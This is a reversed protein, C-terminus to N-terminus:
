RKKQSSGHGTQQENRALAYIMTASLLCFFSAGATLGTDHQKMGIIIDQVNMLCYILLSTRLMISSRRYLSFAIVAAIAVQRAAWMKTIYLTGAATFDVDKIFTGPSLYLSFGVFLGLLSVLSSCINIWKPIPRNM